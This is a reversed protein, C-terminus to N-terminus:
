DFQGKAASSRAGRSCAKRGTSGPTPPWVCTASRDRASGLHVYSHRLGPQRTPWHDAHRPRPRRCVAPARGATATAARACAFTVVTALAVVALLRVRVVTQHMPPATSRLPRAARSIALGFCLGSVITRQESKSSTAEVRRSSTLNRADRVNMISTRLRTATPSTDGDIAPLVQDAAKNFQDLWYTTTPTRARVAVILAGLPILLPQRLAKYDVSPAVATPPPAPAPM